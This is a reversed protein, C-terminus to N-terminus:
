GGLPYGGPRRKRGRRPPGRLQVRCQAQRRRVVERVAGAVLRAGRRVADGVVAQEAQKAWFALRDEEAERYLEATANANEAFEPSPPYTSPIETHTLSM